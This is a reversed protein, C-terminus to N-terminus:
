ECTLIVEDHVFRNRPLTSTVVKKRKLGARYMISQFLLTAAIGLAIGAVGCAVGVVVGIQVDKKTDHCQSTSSMNQPACVVGDGACAFSVVTEKVDSRVHFFTGPM